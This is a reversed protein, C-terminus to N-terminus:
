FLAISPWITGTRNRRYLCIWANTVEADGLIVVPSKENSNVLIDPLESSKFYRM